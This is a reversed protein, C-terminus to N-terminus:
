GNKNIRKIIIVREINNYDKITEIIEFHETKQFINKIARAQNFGIELILFGDKKLYAPAENIIKRYFDLGDRGGDM